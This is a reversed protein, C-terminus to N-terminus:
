KKNLNELVDILKVTWKSIPTQIIVKNDKENIEIIIGSKIEYPCKFSVKDGKKFKM